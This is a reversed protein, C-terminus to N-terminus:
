YIVKFNVKELINIDSIKNGSLNLEKLEKFNVKELINIDSIKNDSLNLEKLEKFNVKELINIDSIKNFNLNLEKLEENSIESLKINKCSIISLLKLKNLKIIFEKNFDINEIYM